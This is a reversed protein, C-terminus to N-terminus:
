FFYKLGFHQYLFTNPVLYVCAMWVHTTEKPMIHEICMRNYMNIVVLNIYIVITSLVKKPVNSTKSATAAKVLDKRLLQFSADVKERATKSKFNMQFYLVFLCDILLCHLYQDYCLGRCIQKIKNM